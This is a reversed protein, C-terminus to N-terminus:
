DVSRSLSKTLKMRWERYEDWRAYSMERVDLEIYREHVIALLRQLCAQIETRAQNMEDWHKEHDDQAMYVPDDYRMFVYATGGPNAHYEHPYALSRGWASHLAYIAQNLNKDDLHFEAGRVVSDFEM